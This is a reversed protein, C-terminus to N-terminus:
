NEFDAAEFLGVVGSSTPEWMSVIFRQRSLKAEAIGGENRKEWGFRARRAYEDSSQGKRM